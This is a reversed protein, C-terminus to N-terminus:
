LAESFLGPFIGLVVTLVLMFILAFTTFADVAVPEGSPERLYMAIIVRFYYYIGVMAMLIGIVVLWLFDNELASGFIFFKGFFGGTLPIGALSLM